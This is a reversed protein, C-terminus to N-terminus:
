RAKYLRVVNKLLLAVTMPGVGGPVPTIWGDVDKLAEADADGYVKGDDKKTTGVDIIVVGPKVLDPGLYGARGIGIVIVDSMKTLEADLEDPHMTATIFGAKQLIRSLPKAFTDSKAIITASKERPDLGTAGILRMIAEHVPSLITGEGTELAKVNEPHFGDADKKPNIEKTIRDTDHGPPLPIQVLIAHTDSDDNWEMIIRIIEEDMVDSPLKRIDTQIGAETAAKEKLGVYIHSAPDDGVLIVGLKPTSPLSAVEKKVEERITKAIARGDIKQMRPITGYFPHKTFAHTNRM